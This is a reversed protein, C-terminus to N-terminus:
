GFIRLNVGDSAFQVSAFQDEILETASGNITEGGSGAVTVGNSSADTKNVTFSEGDTGVSSPATVTVPGGSADVLVWQGFSASYPSSGVGIVVPTPIPAGGGGTPAALAPIEIVAM